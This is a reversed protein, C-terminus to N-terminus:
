QRKAAEEAPLVNVGILVRSAVPKGDLQAPLFEWKALANMASQARIDLARIARLAQLKGNDDIIGTVFVLGWGTAGDAKPGTAQMKKVAVPPSLLGNGGHSHTVLAYEIPWDPGGGADSMTVYVTYVTEDRSFVGVDRSAGGSTGGSIITIAYPRHSVGGATVTATSRSTTPTGGGAISIGPMSGNGSGAAATGSGGGSGGRGGTITLSGSQATGNKSGNPGTGTGSASGASARSSGDGASASTGEGAGAVSGGTTASGGRTGNVGSSPGVIFSCSLEANPVLASADAPIGVANLVVVAEPAVPANTSFEPLSRDTGANAIKPVAAEAPIAASQKPVGMPLVPVQVRPESAKFTMLQQADPVVPQMPQDMQPAVIPKPAHAPLMVMSQLRVPHPLKPPDILDPRRITQVNNTADPLDSVIVQPGAFTPKPRESAAQSPEAKPKAFTLASKRPEGKPDSHSGAKEIRPLAPMYLIEHEPDQLWEQAVNVINPRRGPFLYPLGALLAFVGAIHLMTSLFLGGGPPPAKPLLALKPPRVHKRETTTAPNQETLLPGRLSTLSLERM